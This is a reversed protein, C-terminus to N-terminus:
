SRIIKEIYNRDEQFLIGSLDEIESRPGRGLSKRVDEYKTVSVIFSDLVIKVTKDKEAMKKEFDKIRQHLRIKEDNIGPFNM